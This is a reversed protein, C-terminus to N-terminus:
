GEDHPREPPKSSCNMLPMAPKRRAVVDAAHAAAIRAAHPPPSAPGAPGGIDEPGKTALTGGEVESCGGGTATIVGGIVVNGGGMVM